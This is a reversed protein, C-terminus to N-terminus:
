VEFQVAVRQELIPSITRAMVDLHAPHNRYALYADADDFDASVAFDANGEALGADAGCRFSILGKMQPPLTALDAPVRQKQEDTADARWRFTVVHRIM